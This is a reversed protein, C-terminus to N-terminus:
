VLAVTVSIEAVATKKRCERPNSDRRMSVRSAFVRASNPISAGIFVRAVENVGADADGPRSVTFEAVSASLVPGICSSESESVPSCPTTPNRTKPDAAIPTSSTTMPFISKRTAANRVPGHHPTPTRKPPKVQPITGSIKKKECRSSHLFAKRKLTAPSRMKPTM